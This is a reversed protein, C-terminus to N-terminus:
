QIQNRIITLRDSIYFLLLILDNNGEVCVFVCLGVCTSQQWTLFFAAASAKLLFLFHTHSEGWALFHQSRAAAVTYSLSPQQGAAEGRRTGQLQSYRHSYHCM